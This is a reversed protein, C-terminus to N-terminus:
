KGTPLIVFGPFHRRAIRHTRAVLGDDGCRRTRTSCAGLTHGPRQVAPLTGQLSAASSVSEPASHAEIQQGTPCRCPCQGGIAEKRIPQTRGKRRSAPPHRQSDGLPLSHAANDPSSLLGAGAGRGALRGPASVSNHPARRRTEEERWRLFNVFLWRQNKGVFRPSITGVHEVLLASPLPLPAACIVPILHYKPCCYPALVRPGPFLGSAFALLLLLLLSLCNSRWSRRVTGRPLTFSM